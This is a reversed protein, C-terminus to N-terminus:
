PSISSLAEMHVIFNTDYNRNTEISPRQERVDQKQSSAKDLCLCKNFKYLANVNANNINKSPEIVSGLAAMVRPPTQTEAWFRNESGQCRKLYKRMRQSISVGSFQRVTM